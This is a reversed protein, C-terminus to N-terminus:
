FFLPHITKVITMSHHAVKLVTRTIIILPIIILMFQAIVSMPLLFIFYILILTIALLLQPQIFITVFFLFLNTKIKILFIILTPPLFKTFYNFLNVARNKNM